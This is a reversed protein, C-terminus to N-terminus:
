NCRATLWQLQDADPVGIQVEDLADKASEALLQVCIHRTAAHPHKASVEYIFLEM